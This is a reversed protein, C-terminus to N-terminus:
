RRRDSGEIAGADPRAAWLSRGLAQEGYRHLTQLATSRMARHAGNRAPSRLYDRFHTTHFKDRNAALFRCLSEFRAIHLPHPQPPPHGRAYGRLLEFTHLVICFTPWQENWAWMLAENMEAASCACVQTNRFKGRYDVFFSVPIETVGGEDVPGIAPGLDALGCGKGLYAVNHSSDFRLGNASAARLSNVDAGFNGARLAVINGAGANRLKALGYAIIASQEDYTYCRLFQQFRSPLLGQHLEGLWETHIQLQCEQGAAEITGVLARLVDEGLVDTSLTEVFFTAKLDYHTLRKLLYRVGFEGAGTKGYLYTAIERELNVRKTLAVDPWGRAFPWAETDVTVFVEVM